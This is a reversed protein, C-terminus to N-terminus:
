RAVRQRVSAIHAAHHRGHWAYMQLMRDLPQRGSEPHVIERRFDSDRMARLLVVWRRHLADLLALSVDVLHGQVMLAVCVAGAEVAKHGCIVLRFQHREPLLRM